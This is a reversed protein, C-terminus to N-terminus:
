IFILDIVIVAGVVACVIKISKSTNKFWMVIKLIPNEKKVTESHTEM